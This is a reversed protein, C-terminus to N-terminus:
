PHTQQRRAYEIARDIRALVRERGALELTIDIPPSAARGCVAVRLPQALQGLKLGETEANDVILEHISSAAWVPLAQLDERVRMLAGVVSTKLYKKAAVPDYDDFDRYFFVSNHAMEALTKSRERQVMVVEILGAGGVPDINIRGMQWSLHRAVHAPDANKIYHHSLWLLKDPDFTAAARNVDRIDFLDVMEDLSFVEQDGHSWGLRVLYNLLAEPLYGDQRYQMVSVAGHRKSLRQGDAGMIMPVHAYHPPSGGLAHCINIQRPTNNLHDDGRIVHTIAMDLDDVVVTLNYTPTGDARALVLDDLEDNRFEVTGRILDPVGVWGQDPNRFRIVSPITASPPYRIDRCHGDYRPKDGRSMQEARLANLREKSCYCRYAKGESLLRSLVEHYRDFRRTQFIPGEDYELGLWAMGELIAAVSEATSRERDTDEIRLVFEGGHHRAHLWSFLATRAGGIHLLGTPSPAFRTRVTM